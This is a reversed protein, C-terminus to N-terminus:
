LLASYKIWAFAVGLLDVEGECYMCRLNGRTNKYVTAPSITVWGPKIPYSMKFSVFSWIGTAHCFWFNNWVAEDSLLLVMIFCLTLSKPLLPLVQRLVESLIFFDIFKLCQVCCELALPGRFWFLLVTRHCWPLTWCRTVALEWSWCQSVYWFHLLNPILSIMQWYKLLQLFTFRTCLHFPIANLYVTSSFITYCTLAFFGVPTRHIFM